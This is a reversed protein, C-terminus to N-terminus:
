IQVTLETKTPHSFVILLPYCDLKGIGMKKELKSISSLDLEYSINASGNAAQLKNAIPLDKALFDAEM